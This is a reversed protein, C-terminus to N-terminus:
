VSPVAGVPCLFLGSRGPVQDRGSGYWCRSSPPRVAAEAAAVASGAV